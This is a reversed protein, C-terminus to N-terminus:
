HCSSTPEFQLSESMNVRIFDQRQAGMELTVASLRPLFRNVILVAQVARTRLIAEDNCTLDSTMVTEADLSVFLVMGELEVRISHNGGSGGSGHGPFMPPDDVYVPGGAGNFPDYYCDGAVM